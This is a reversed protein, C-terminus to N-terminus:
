LSPAFLFSGARLDCRGWLAESDFSMWSSRPVTLDFNERGLNMVDLM